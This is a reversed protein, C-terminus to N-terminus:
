ADDIEEVYEIFLYRDDLIMADITAESSTVRVLCTPAEPVPGLCSWGYGQETGLGYAHTEDPQFPPPKPTSNVVPVAFIARM